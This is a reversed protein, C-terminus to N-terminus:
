FSTNKGWFDIEDADSKFKPIKKKLAKM